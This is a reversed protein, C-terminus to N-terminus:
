SCGRSQLARHPGSFASHSTEECNDTNAPGRPLGITGHALLWRPGLMGCEHISKSGASENNATTRQAGTLAYKVNDFGFGLTRDTLAERLIRPFSHRQQSRFADLGPIHQEIAVCGV